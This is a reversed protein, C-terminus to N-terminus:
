AHAVGSVKNNGTNSTPSCFQCAAGAARSVGAIGAAPAAEARASACRSNLKTEKTAAAAACPRNAAFRSGPEPRRNLGTECTEIAARSVIGIAFLRSADAGIVIAGPVFQVLASMPPSCGWVGLGASGGCPRSAPGRTYEAFRGSRAIAPTTTICSIM